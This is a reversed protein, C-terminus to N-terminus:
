ELFRGNGFVGPAGRYPASSFTRMKLWGGFGKQGSVSYARESRCLAPPWLEPGDFRLEKRAVRQEGAAM